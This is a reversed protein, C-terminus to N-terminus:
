FMVGLGLDLSLTKFKITSAGVSIAVPGVKSVIGVEVVLGRNSLDKVLWWSGSYSNDSNLYLRDNFGYGVGIYPYLSEYARFLLGGSAKVVSTKTKSTPSTLGKYSYVFYESKAFEYNSRFSVYGGFKKVVGVMVGYSGPISTKSSMTNILPSTHASVLWKTGIVKKESINLDSVRNGSVGGRETASINYPSVKKDSVDLRFSIDKGVLRDKRGSFDYRIRKLGSDTITGIDGSFETAKRFSKGDIYMMANVKCSQVDEGLLIRYDIVIENKGMSVKTEGISVGNRKPPTLEQSYSLAASLALSVLALILKLNTM